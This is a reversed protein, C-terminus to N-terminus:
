GGGDGCGDGCAYGYGCSEGIEYKGMAVEKEIMTTTSVAGTAMAMVKGM